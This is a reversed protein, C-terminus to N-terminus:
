TRSGDRGSARRARSSGRRRCPRRALQPVLREREGPDHLRAHGVDRRDDVLVDVANPDHLRERGLLCLDVLQGARGVPQPPCRHSRRHSPRAIRREHLVERPEAERRHQQIATPERDLALDGDARDHREVGVDDHQLRREPQEAHDRHQALARRRRRRADVLDEVFWRVDDITGSGDVEDRRATVDLEVVDREGIAPRSRLAGLRHELVERQVDGGALRDRDDTSRAAALRRDSSQEGAEVVDVLACDADVPM